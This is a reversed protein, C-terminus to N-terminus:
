RITYVRNMRFERKKFIYTNLTSEHLNWGKSAVFNLIAPLTYFKGNESEIAFKMDFDPDIARCTDVDLFIMGGSELSKLVMDTNKVDQEREIKVILIYEDSFFDVVSISCQIFLLLSVLVAFWKGKSREMPLEKELVEKQTEVEESTKIKDINAKLANSLCTGCMGTRYVGLQIGQEIADSFPKPLGTLGGVKKGCVPCVSSM